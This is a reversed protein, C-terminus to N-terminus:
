KGKIGKILSVLKEETMYGDYDYNHLCIIDNVKKDDKEDIECVFLMENPEGVAGISLQRNRGLDFIMSGTVTFYPIDKFGLKRLDDKTLPM